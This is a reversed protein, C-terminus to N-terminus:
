PREYFYELDGNFLIYNKQTNDSIKNRLEIQSKKSYKVQFIHESIM